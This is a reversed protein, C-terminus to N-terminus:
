FHGNHSLQESNNVVIHSNDSMQVFAESRLM